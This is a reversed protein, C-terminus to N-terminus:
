APFRGGADDGSDGVSRFATHLERKRTVAYFRLEFGSVHRGFLACGYHSNNRNSGNLGHFLGNITIRNTIATNTTRPAGVDEEAKTEAIGVPVDASGPVHANNPMNM